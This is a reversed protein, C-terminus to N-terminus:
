TTRRSHLAVVDAAARRAGRDQVLGPKRPLDALRVRPRRKPGVNELRGDRILRGLHDASYGSVSAAEALSVIARAQDSLATALDEACSEMAVALDVAGRRRFLAAEACWTASLQELERASM